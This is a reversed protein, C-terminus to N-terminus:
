NWLYWCDIIICVLMYSWRIYFHVFPCLLLLISELKKKFSFCLLMISLERILNLLSFCLLNSNFFKNKRFSDRRWFTYRQVQAGQLHKSWGACKCLRILIRVPSLKFLRPNLIKEHPCRSRVKPCTLWAFIWILRRMRATKDSDLCPANQIATSAFKRWASLSFQGSLASWYASKPRRRSCLDSPENQWTAPWISTFTFRFRFPYSLDRSHCETVLPTRPVLLDIELGAWHWLDRPM